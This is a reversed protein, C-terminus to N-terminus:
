LDKERVLRNVYKVNAKAIVTLSFGSEDATDLSGVLHYEEDTEGLLYGVTRVTALHIDKMESLPKWGPHDTLGSDLWILELPEL